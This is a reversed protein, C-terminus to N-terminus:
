FYDHAIVLPDNLVEDKKSPDIRLKAKLEYSDLWSDITAPSTYQISKSQWLGTLLWSLRSEM